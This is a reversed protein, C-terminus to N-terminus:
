CGGHGGRGPLQGITPAMPTADLRVVDGPRFAGVDPTRALVKMVAQSLANIGEEGACRYEEMCALVFGREISRVGVGRAFLITKAIRQCHRLLLRPTLTVHVRARFCADRAGASRATGIIAWGELTLPSGQTTVMVGTRMTAQLWTRVTASAADLNEVIICGSAYKLREYAWSTDITEDLLQQLAPGGTSARCDVELVTRFLSQGIHRALTGKGTGEPGHLLLTFLPGQTAPVDLQEALSEELDELTRRELLVSREIERLAVRFRTSFADRQASSFPPAQHRRGTALVLMVATATVLAVALMLHQTFTLRQWAALGGFMLSVVLLGLLNGRPSM